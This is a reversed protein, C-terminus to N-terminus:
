RYLPHLGRPFQRHCKRRGHTVARGARRACTNERVPNEDWTEADHRLNPFLQAAIQRHTAGAARADVTRLMLRARRQRQPTVRRDPPVRKRFVAHWLREVATLRDPTLEDFMVFVGIPGTADMDLLSVDYREAGLVLRIMDPGARIISHNRLDDAYVRPGEAPTPGDTFPLTAPDVQPTWFIPQILASTRPDAAFDCGGNNPSVDRSRKPSGGSPSLSRIHMGITPIVAFFSGPM